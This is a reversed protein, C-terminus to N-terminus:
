WWIAIAGGGGAPATLAFRRKAVQGQRSPADLRAKTKKDM